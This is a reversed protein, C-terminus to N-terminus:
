YGVGLILLSVYRGALPVVAEILSDPAQVRAFDQRFRRRHAVTRCAAPGSTWASPACSLGRGPAADAFAPAAILAGVLGLAIIATRPTSRSM